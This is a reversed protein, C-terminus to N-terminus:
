RIRVRIELVRNRKALDQHISLSAHPFLQKTLKKLANAQPPDFELLITTDGYNWEPLHRSLQKLFRTILLLGDTGSFLAQPPEYNVVDPQLIKKDSAPLYPLNATILLHTQPTAHTELWRYSHPQLLNSKLFTIRSSANHRKANKRAVTLARASIDTALIKTDRLEKALTVAIAGSGTGVDWVTLSQSRNLHQTAHCAREVLLETEPRPILVHKNVVFTRGYFEKHGTLYAIPAHAQRKKILADARKAHAARIRTHNHTVLWTRDRRLVNALLIEADRPPIIRAAHSLISQITIPQSKDSM